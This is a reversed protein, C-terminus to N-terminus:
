NAKSKKLTFVFEAYKGYESKAWIKQNHANVISKVMYLGLGLGKADLGRSKDAKFFRDFVHPLDESRIGKGTNKVSIYVKDGDDIIKITVIGKEETFKVANEILNYIVRYIADEDGVVSICDNPMEISVDLKKEECKPEFNIAVRGTLSVIDFVHQKMVLEGSEMKTMDLLSSVLRSMRKIEDSVISLYHEQRDRPITGDRIGDIFGSITTMPTRLEHSLNSIFSRRTQETQELSSAMNNFAIALEGIEDNTEAKVKQKFDGKAYKKAVTSMQNIPQVTKAILFYLVIFVICLVILACLIFYSAVSNTVKTINYMPTSLFVANTVQNFSNYVPVGIILNNNKYYGSLTGREKYLKGEKVRNIIREPVTYTGSLIDASGSKYLVRGMRDTILVNVDSGSTYLDLTQTYVSGYSYFHNEELHSTMKSINEAANYLSQQKDFVSYFNIISIVAAGFVLFAALIISVFIFYYKFFLKNKM